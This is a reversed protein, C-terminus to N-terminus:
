AKFMCELTVLLYGWFPVDMEAESGSSRFGDAGLGMCGYVWVGM